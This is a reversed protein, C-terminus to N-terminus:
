FVMVSGPAVSRLTSRSMEPLPKPAARSSTMKAAM